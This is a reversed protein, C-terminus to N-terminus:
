SLWRKMRKKAEAHPVTRGARIAAEGSELGALIRARTVEELLCAAVANQNRVPLKRAESVARELLKTM